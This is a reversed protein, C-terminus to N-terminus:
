EGPKGADAKSAAIQAAYLELMRYKAQVVVHHYGAADAQRIISACTQWYPTQKCLVKLAQQHLNDHARLMQVMINAEDSSSCLKLWLDFVTTRRPDNVRLQGFIVRADKATKCLEIARSIIMNQVHNPLDDLSLRVINITFVEESSTAAALEKALLAACKEHALVRLKTNAPAHCNYVLWATHSTVALSLQEECLEMHRALIMSRLESNNPSRALIIATTGPTKAQELLQQTRAEWRKLIHLAMRTDFEKWRNYAHQLRDLEGVPDPIPSPYDSSNLISLTKEIISHCTQPFPRCRPLLKMLSDIDDLKKIKKELIRPLFEEPKFKDAFNLMTSIEYEEDTSLALMKELARKETDPNNIKNQRIASLVGKLGDFTSAEDIEKEFRTIAEQRAIETKKLEEMQAAELAKELTTMTATDPAEPHREAFHKRLEKLEEAGECLEPRGILAVLNAFPVGSEEVLYKVDKKTLQRLNVDMM